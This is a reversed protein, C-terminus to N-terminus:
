HTRSRTLSHALSHAISRTYRPNLTTRIESAFPLPVQDVHFMLHPPFRGYKACRQPESVQLVEHLFRHFRKIAVRRDHQDHAKVNNKAQTTIKYRRCFNVAWGTSVLKYDFNSPPAERLIRDMEMRLWWANVPYGLATRRNLFRVYLEDEQDGYKAHRLKGSPDRSLAANRGKASTMDRIVEVRALWKSLYGKRQKWIAGFAWKCTETFPCRVLPNEEFDYYVDLVKSKQWAKYSTRVGPGAPALINGGGLKPAM